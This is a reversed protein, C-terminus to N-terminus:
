SSKEPWQGNSELEFEILYRDHNISLDNVGSRGLGIFAELPSETPREPAEPPEPETHRLLEEIAQRALDEVSVGQEVALQQLEDFQHQYLYLQLPAKALTDM